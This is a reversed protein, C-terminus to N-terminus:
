NHMQNQGLGQIKRRSTTVRFTRAQDPKLQYRDSSKSHNQNLYTRCQKSSVKNLLSQNHPNLITQRTTILWNHPQQSITWTHLSLATQSLEQSIWKTNKPGIVWNQYAVQNIIRLIIRSSRNPLAQEHKTLSKETVKHQLILYEAKTM